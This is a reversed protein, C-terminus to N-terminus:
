EHVVARLASQPMAIPTLKGLIELLVFARQEPAAIQFVAQLGSFPGQTIEVPDGPKYLARGPEAACRAQLEEILVNPVVVPTNGFAVLRSVGPTSRIPTWAKAELRNDLQIFLYRPFLIEQVWQVRQRLLKEVRLTPLFCRYGQEELRALARSEERPKTHVAYWAIM